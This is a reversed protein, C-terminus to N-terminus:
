LTTKTLTHLEKSIVQCEALLKEARSVDGASEAQKLEAMKATFKERLIEEELGKLLENLEEEVRESGQLRAEAEFILADRDLIEPPSEMLKAFRARYESINKLTADKLSEQWMLIGLTTRAIRDQRSLPTATRELTEVKQVISAMGARKKIEDWVAEEKIGLLKAIEGAYHGQDISSKLLAVFPIIVESVKARLETKDKHLEPLLELYLDIVQKANKVASVWLAPDKRAVDAPDMGEPLRAIRVTLDHSLALEVARHAAAIGASDADFALIINKTFRNIMDLHEGTLATGSSAVTNTVGAQHSLILDMQGEVLVCADEHRIAERAQSFGFLARSKHFIETEPSNVYKASASAGLTKGAEEKLIRGSFAIVRGSSDTIPFMVRGRFRDYFGKPSRVILGAREMVSEPIGKKTLFDGLSRWEDPAFGVRFSKITEQTLGRGTLYSVADPFKPLVAEYFKTALEMTMFIADREDKAGPRERKLEVGAREALIKLAGQFDLGEVEEVFSIIDGGKNCGFCHYTQRAPSIFFSPTRENHFPCCAKFNGGAKELKLYGAAIDVINLRSKIDEIVSSM